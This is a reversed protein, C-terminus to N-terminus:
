SQKTGASRGCLRGRAQVPPPGGPSRAIVVCNKPPPSAGRHNALAALQRALRGRLAIRQLYQQGHGAAGKATPVLLQRRAPLLTDASRRGGGIKKRDGM